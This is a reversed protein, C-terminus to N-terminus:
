AEIRWTNMGDKKSRYGASSASVRLLAATHSRTVRALHLCEQLFELSGRFVRERVEENEQGRLELVTNRGHEVIAIQAAAFDGSRIAEKLHACLASDM